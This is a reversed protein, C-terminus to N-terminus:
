QVVRFPVSSSLTGGPTVVKIWLAGLICVRTATKVRDMDLRREYSEAMIKRCGTTSPIWLGYCTSYNRIMIARAAARSQPSGAPFDSPRLYCWGV